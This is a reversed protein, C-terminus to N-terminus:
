NYGKVSRLWGGASLKKSFPHNLCDPLWALNTWKKFSLELGAYPSIKLMNSIKVYGMVHSYPNIIWKLFNDLSSRHRQYKPFDKCMQRDHHQRHGGIQHNVKTVFMHGKIEDSSKKQRVETINKPRVWFMHMNCKMVDFLCFFMRVPTYQEICFESTYTFKHQKTPQIKLFYVEVSMAAPLNRDLLEQWISNSNWLALLYEAECSVNSLNM